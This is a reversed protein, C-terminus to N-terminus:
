VGIEEFFKDCKNKTNCKINLDIENKM